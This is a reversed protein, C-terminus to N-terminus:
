RISQHSQFRISQRSCMMPGNTCLIKIPKLYPMKWICIRLVFQALATSVGIWVTETVGTWVTAILCFRLTRCLHALTTCVYLCVFVLVTVYYTHRPRYTSGQGYSLRGSAYGNELFVLSLILM